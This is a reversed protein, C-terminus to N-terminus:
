EPIPVGAMRYQEDTPPNESDINVAAIQERALERITHLNKPPPPKDEGYAHGEARRGAPCTCPVALMTEELSREFTYPTKMAPWFYLWGDRCLGCMRVDPENQKNAKWREKIIASKIQPYTPPKAQDGKKRADEAIALLAQELEEQLQDSDVGRRPFDIRLLRDFEAKVDEDLWRGFLAKYTDEWSM